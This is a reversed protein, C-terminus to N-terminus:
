KGSKKNLGEGHLRLSIKQQLEAHQNVISLSAAIQWNKQTEDVNGMKLNCDGLQLYVEDILFLTEYQRCLNLAVNNLQLANGMQDIHQHLQALSVYSAILKYYDTKPDIQELLVTAQTALKEANVQNHKYFWTNGAAITAMIQYIQDGAQTFQKLVLEFNFLAEDYNENQNLQLMGLFYYYRQKDYTQRLQKIGINNLQNTAADYKKQLILQNITEFVDTLVQNEDILITDISVGLRACLQTLIQMSPVNGKKEILSVTAQTCIGAALQKQSLGKNKRLMKLQDGRLKM